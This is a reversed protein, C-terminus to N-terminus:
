IHELYINEPYLEISTHHTIMYKDDEQAATWAKGQQRFAVLIYNKRYSYFNSATSFDVRRRNDDVGRKMQCLLLLCIRRTSGLDLRPYTHATPPSSPRAPPNAATGVARATSSSHRSAEIPPPERESLGGRSSASRHRGIFFRIVAVNIKLQM